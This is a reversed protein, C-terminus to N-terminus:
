PGLAGCAVETDGQAIRVTRASRPKPRAITTHLDIADRIRTAIDPGLTFKAAGAPRRKSCPARAFYYIGEEEMLGECRQQVRCRITSDVTVHQNSKSRMVAVADVGSGGVPKLRAVAAQGRGLPGCAAPTGDATLVVSRSADLQKFDLQYPDDWIIVGPRAGFDAGGALNGGFLKPKSTGCGSSSLRLKYANGSPDSPDVTLAMLGGIVSSSQPGALLRLNGRERHGPLPKLRATVTAAQAEECATLALACAALLVLRAAAPRM